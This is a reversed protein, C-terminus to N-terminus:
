RATGPRAALLECHLLLFSTNHLPASGGANIDSGSTVHGQQTSEARTRM